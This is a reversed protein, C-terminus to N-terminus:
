DHSGGKAEAIFQAANYTFDAIEEGAMRLAVNIDSLELLASVNRMAKEAMELLTFLQTNEERLQDREKILKAREAFIHWSKNGEEHAEQAAAVADRLEQSAM